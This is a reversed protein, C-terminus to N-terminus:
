LGNVEKAPAPWGALLRREEISYLSTRAAIFLTRRDTGFALHIPREPM